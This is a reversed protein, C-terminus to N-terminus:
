AREFLDPVYNRFAIVRLEYLREEFQLILEKYELALIEFKGGLQRAKFPLRIQTRPHMYASRETVVKLLAVIDMETRFAPLATPFGNM